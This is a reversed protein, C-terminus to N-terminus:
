EGDHDDEDPSVDDIESHFVGLDDVIMESLGEAGGIQHLYDYPSAGEGFAHLPLDNTLSYFQLFLMYTRGQGDPLLHFYHQVNMLKIFEELRDAPDEIDDLGEFVNTILDDYWQRFDEYSNMQDIDGSGGFAVLQNGNNSEAITIGFKPNDYKDGDERLRDYENMFDSDLAHTEAFLEVLLYDLDEFDIWQKYEQIWLLFQDPDSFWEPSITHLATEIEGAGWDQSQWFGEFSQEFSEPGEHGAGTLGQRMMDRFNIFDNPTPIFGEQNGQLYEQALVDWAARIRPLYDPHFENGRDRSPMFLTDFNSFATEGDGTSPSLNIWDPHSTGIGSPANLYQQVRDWDVNGDEDTFIQRAQYQEILSSLDDTFIRHTLPEPAVGEPDRRQPPVYVSIWEDRRASYIVNYDQIVQGDSDIPRFVTNEGNGTFAAIRVPGPTISHRSDLGNEVHIVIFPTGNIEGGPASVLSGNLALLMNDDIDGKEEETVIGTAVEDLTSLTGVALTALRSAASSANGRRNDMAMLVDFNRVYDDTLEFIEIVFQANSAADLIPAAEDPSLEALIKESAEAGISELTRAANDDSMRKLINAASEPSDDSMAALISGALSAQGAIVLNELIQAAEQPNMSALIRAANEPKMAGLFIAQQAPTMNSILEGSVEDIHSLNVALPSEQYADEYMGEVLSGVVSPGMPKFWELIQERGESAPLLPNVAGNFLDMTTELREGGDYPASEQAKRVLGDFISGVREPDASDVALLSLVYEPTNTTLEDLLIDVANEINIGQFEEIDADDYAGMEQPGNDSTTDIPNFVGDVRAYDEAIGIVNNSQSLDVNVLIEYAAEQAPGDYDYEYFKHARGLLNDDHLAQQIYANADEASVDKSLLFEFAQVIGEQWAPHAFVLPVDVSLGEVPAFPGPDAYGDAFDTNSSADIKTLFNKTVDYLNDSTYDPLSESRTLGNLLHQQLYTQIDNDSVNQAKLAEYINLLAVRLDISDVRADIDLEKGDPLHFKYQTTREHISSLTNQEEYLFWIEGPILGVVGVAEGILDALAESGTVDVVDLDTAAIPEPLEEIMGPPKPITVPEEIMSPVPPRNLEPYFRNTVRLNRHGGEGDSEGFAVRDHDRHIRIETDSDIHRFVHHDDNMGQYEYDEFQGEFLVPRDNEGIVVTGGVLEEAADLANFQSSDESFLSGGEARSYTAYDGADPSEDFVHRMEFTDNSRDHILYTDGDANHLHVEDGEIRIGNDAENILAIAEESANPHYAILLAINSNDAYDSAIEDLRSTSIELNNVDELLTGIDPTDRVQELLGSAQSLLDGLYPGLGESQVFPATNAMHDAHELVLILRDLIVAAEGFNGNQIHSEVVTLLDEGSTYVDRLYDLSRGRLQYFAGNVGDPNNQIGEGLLADFDSKAQELQDLSLHDGSLNPATPAVPKDIVPEPTLSDVLNAIRILLVDVDTDRIDLLGQAIGDNVIGKVDGFMDELTIGRDETVPLSVDLDLDGYVTDRYNSIISTLVNSGGNGNEEFELLTELTDLLGNVRDLLEDGTVNGASVDAKLQELDNFFSGVKIFPQGNDLFSAEGGPPQLTFQGSQSLFPTIVEDWLSAAPILPVLESPMHTTISSLVEYLKNNNSM